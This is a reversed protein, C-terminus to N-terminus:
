VNPKFVVNQLLMGALQTIYHNTREGALWQVRTQNTSPNRVRPISTCTTYVCYAPVPFWPAIKKTAEFGQM